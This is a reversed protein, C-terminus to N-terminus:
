SKRTGEPAPGSSSSGAAAERSFGGPRLLRRACATRVADALEVPGPGGEIPVSLSWNAGDPAIVDVRIWTSGVPSIAVDWRGPLDHLAAEVSVTLAAYPHGAPLHSWLTLGSGEPAASGARVTKRGKM